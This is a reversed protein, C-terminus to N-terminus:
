EPTTFLARNDVHKLTLSAMMQEAKKLVYQQLRPENKESIANYLIAFSVGILYGDTAVIQYYIGYSYPDPQSREYIFRIVQHGKVTFVLPANVLTDGSEEMLTKRTSVLDAIDPRIAQDFTALRHIHINSSVYAANVGWKWQESLRQVNNHETEFMPDHLSLRDKSRSQGFTIKQPVVHRISFDFAETQLEYDRSYTALGENFDREVKDQVADLAGCSSLCFTLAFIIICSFSHKISGGLGFPNVSILFHAQLSIM